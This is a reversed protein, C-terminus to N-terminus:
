ALPQYCRCGASGYRFRTCGKAPVDYERRCPLFRVLQRRRKPCVSKRLQSPSRKRSQSPRLSPSQRPRQFLSPSRSPNPRQRPSRNQCPNPLPKPVPKPETKKEVVPVPKPAPASEPVPAAKPAAKEVVVPAVAEGEASEANEAADGEVVEGYVALESVSVKARGISKDRSSPAVGTIIIKFSDVTKPLLKVRQVGADPRLTFKQRTEDPYIVVGRIMRRFKKFQGRGQNGNAVHLSDLTVPKEFSLEIWKGPGIGKGGGVWATAPDGDVMNDPVYRGQHNAADVTVGSIQGASVPPCTLIGATLCLLFCFSIKLRLPLM